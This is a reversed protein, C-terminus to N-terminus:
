GRRNYRIRRIRETKNDIDQQTPPYIPELEEFTTARQGTEIADQIQRPTPTARDLSNNQNNNGYIKKLREALSV